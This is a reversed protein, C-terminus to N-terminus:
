GLRRSKTHLAANQTRKAFPNERTSNPEARIGARSSATLGYERQYLRLQTILSANVEDGAKAKARIIGYIMCLVELGELDSVLLAGKKLLIPIIREWYIKGM